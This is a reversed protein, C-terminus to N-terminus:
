NHIPPNKGAPTYDMTALEHVEQKPDFVNSNVKKNDINQSLLSSKVTERLSRAASILCKHMSNFFQHHQLCMASRRCCICLTAAICGHASNYAM